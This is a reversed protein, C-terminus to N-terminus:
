DILGDVNVFPSFGLFRYTGFADRCDAKAAYLNDFWENYDQYTVVDAKFLAFDRAVDILCEDLNAYLSLIVRVEEDTIELDKNIICPFNSCGTLASTVPKSIQVELVPLADMSYIQRRLQLDYKRPDTDAYFMSDSLATMHPKNYVEGYHRASQAPEYSISTNGANGGSSIVEAFAAAPLMMMIALAIAFTKKM